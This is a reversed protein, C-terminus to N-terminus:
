LYHKQKDTLLDNVDPVHYLYHAKQFIWIIISLLVVKCRAIENSVALINMRKSSICICLCALNIQGEVQQCNEFFTQFSFTLFYLSQLATWQLWVSTLQLTILLIVARYPLIERKDDSQYKLDTEQYKLYVKWNSINEALM